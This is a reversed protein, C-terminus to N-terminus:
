IGDDLIYKGDLSLLGLHHTAIGELTAEVSGHQIAKMEDGFLGATL